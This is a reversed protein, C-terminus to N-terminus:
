LWKEGCIFDDDSEDDEMDFLAKLCNIAARAKAKVMRADDQLTRIRERAARGTEKMKEMQATMERITNDQRRFTEQLELCWKELDERPADKYLQKYFEMTEELKEDM